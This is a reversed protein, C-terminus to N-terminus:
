LKVMLNMFASPQINGGSGTGSSNVTVGIGTTASDTNGGTETGNLQAAPVYGNGNNTTEATSTIHHVHGPDSVSTTHTHSQLNEDGLFQGLARSTLGVGAGAFAMARGLILPMGMPKNAMFDAVGSVGRGGTVPAYSNSVNAWWLEYLASANANAYTAGSSGSGITGDNMLIWGSDATTKYTPKVDGTSFGSGSAVSLVNWNASPPTDTNSSIASQYATGEYFVIAYQAYSFPSGNNMATTIFPPIGNQQWNQIAATIDNLIQNFQARGVLV